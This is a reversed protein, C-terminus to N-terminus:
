KVPNKEDLVTSPIFRSKLVYDFHVMDGAKHNYLWETNIHIKGKCGCNKNNNDCTNYVWYLAPYATSLKFVIEHCNGSAVTEKQDISYVILDVDHYLKDNKQNHDTTCSSFPMPLLIIIISAILVIAFDIFFLTKRKM